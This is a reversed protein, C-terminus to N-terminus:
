GIYKGYSMYPVYQHQHTYLRLNLIGDGGNDANYRIGDNITDKLKANFTYCLGYIGSVFWTFNTASCPIGNYNCYIMMSDLSYFFDNLSENRNSKYILFDRVYTSQTETFNTSDTTNTLNLTNTYNLFPGIFRDYRLPSYNCITVAPFAQPWEVIVSISIQSPYELYARISQVVFYCMLGTFILLSIIWFLRNRVSQSRAIGPIGHTSTNLSFEKIISCRRRIKSDPKLANSEIPFVTAVHRVTENSMDVTFLQIHHKTLQM